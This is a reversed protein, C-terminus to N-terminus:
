LCRGSVRRVGAGCRRHPAPTVPAGPEDKRRAVLGPYSTGRDIADARVRSACGSTSAAGTRPATSCASTRVRAASGRDPLQAARRGPPRGTRRRSRWWAPGSAARPRGTRAPAPRPRASGTPTRTPVARAPTEGDAGRSGSPSSSTPGRTRPALGSGLRGTRPQPPRRAAPAHSGRRGSRPPCVRRTRPEQGELRGTRAEFRYLRRDFLRSGRLAHRLGLEHAPRHADAVRHDGVQVLGEPVARRAGTRGGVPEGLGQSGELCRAGSM